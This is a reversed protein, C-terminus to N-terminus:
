RSCRWHFRGKCAFPRSPLKRATMAAWLGGGSLVLAAPARRPGLGQRPRQSGRRRQLFLLHLRPSIRLFRSATAPVTSSCYLFYCFRNALQRCKWSNNRNIRPRSNSNRHRSHSYHFCLVTTVMEAICRCFCACRCYKRCHKNVHCCCCEVLRIHTGWPMGEETLKALAHTIHAIQQFPACICLM